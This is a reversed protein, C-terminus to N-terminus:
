VIKNLLVLVRVSFLGFFRINRSLITEGLVIM